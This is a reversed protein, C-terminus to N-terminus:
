IMRIYPALLHQVARNPKMKYDSYGDREQDYLTGLMIKIAHEIDAPLEDQYGTQYSLIVKGESPYASSDLTVDFFFQSEILEYDMATLITEVGETDVYKVEDMSVLPTENIRLVGGSYKNFSHTVSTLAIDASIMGSCFRESANTMAQILADDEVFDEELNLHKKAITNTIPNSVVQKKIVAYKENDNMIQLFGKNNFLPIESSVGWM